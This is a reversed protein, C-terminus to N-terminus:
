RLHWIFCFTNFVLGVEKESHGGVQINHSHVRYLAKTIDFLSRWFANIDEPTSPPPTDKFYEELTGKDAFELLVYKTGNHTFNGYYETIQLCNSLKQYAEVEWKSSESGSEYYTKLAFTDLSKNQWPTLINSLEHQPYYSVPTCPYDGDKDGHLFNYCGHIEIRSVSGSGGSGREEMLTIPLIRQNDWDKEMNEKFQVPLFAWQAKCFDEYFKADKSDSPFNIPKTLQTFPLQKDRFDQRVFSKLHQGKNIKMLICLVATYDALIEKTLHFNDEKPYLADLLAGLKLRHQKGLYEKVATICVFSKKPKIQSQLEKNKLFENFESIARPEPSGQSFDQSPVMTLVLCLCHWTGDDADSLHSDSIVLLPYLLHPTALSCPRICPWRVRQM